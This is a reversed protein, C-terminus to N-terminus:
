TPALGGVKFQFMRFDDTSYEPANLESTSYPLSDDASNLGAAAAAAFAAADSGGFLDQQAASPHARSRAVDECQTLCFRRAARSFPARGFLTAPPACTATLGARGQGPAARLVRCCDFQIKAAVATM